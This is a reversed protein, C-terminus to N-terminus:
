ARRDHLVPRSAARSVAPHRSRGSTSVRYRRGDQRGSVRGFGDVARSGRHGLRNRSRAAPDRRHLGGARGNRRGPAVTLAAGHARVPHVCGSRPRIQARGDGAPDRGVQRWQRARRRHRDDAGGDSGPRAPHRHHQPRVSGDDTGTRQPDSLGGRVVLLDVRWRRGRGRGPEARAGHRLRHSHRHHRSGPGRRAPVGAQRVPAVTRQQGGTRRRLASLRRRTGGTDPDRRRRYFLGLVSPGIVIGATLYALASGIKLRQFIPVFALLAVLLILVDQIYNHENPEM